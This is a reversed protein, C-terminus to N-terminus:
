TRYNNEEIRAYYINGWTRGSGLGHMRSISGLTHGLSLFGAVVWPMNAVQSGACLPTGQPVFGHEHCVELTGDEALFLSTLSM